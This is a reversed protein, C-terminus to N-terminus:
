ADEKIQSNDSAVLVGPDGVLLTKIIKAQERLAESLEQTAEAQLDFARQQREIIDQQLLTADRLREVETSNSIRNELTRVRRDLADFRTGLSQDVVPQGNSDLPRRRDDCRILNRKREPQPGQKGALRGEDFWRRVKARSWGLAEATEGVSLYGNTM